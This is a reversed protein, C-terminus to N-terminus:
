VVSKRNVSSRRTPFSHLIPLADHLSLTYEKESHKCEYNDLRAGEPYKKLCAKCLPFLLREDNEFKAPLVTVRLNKPPVILVKLMGKYPNDSPKTWNVFQESYLSLNLIDQRIVHLFTLKQTYEGFM